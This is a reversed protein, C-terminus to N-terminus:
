LDVKPVTYFFLKDSNGRVNLDAEHVETHDIYLHTRTCM